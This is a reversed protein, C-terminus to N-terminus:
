RPRLADVWSKIEGYVRRWRRAKDAARSVKGYVAVARVLKGLGKPKQEPM